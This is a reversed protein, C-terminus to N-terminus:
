VGPYEKFCFPCIRGVLVPRGIGANYVYKRITVCGLLAHRVRLRLSPRAMPRVETIGSEKLSQVTEESVNPAPDM